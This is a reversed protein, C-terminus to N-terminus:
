WEEKEETTFTWTDIIEVPCDISEDYPAIDEKAGATLRDSEYIQQIGDAYTNFSTLTETSTKESLFSDQDGEGTGEFWENLDEEGEEDEGVEGNDDIEDLVVGGELREKHLRGEDVQKRM